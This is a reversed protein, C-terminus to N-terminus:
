RGHFHTHGHRLLAGNRFARLNARAIAAARYRISFLNRDHASDAATQLERKILPMLAARDEVLLLLAHAVARNNLAAALLEPNDGKAGAMRRAQTYADIACHLLAADFRGHSLAQHMYLNGLQWWPYARHAFTTWQAIHLASDKLNTEVAELVRDEPISRAAGFIQALTVIFRATDARPELTMGIVPVSEVFKLRTYKLWPELDSSRVLVSRSPHFSLNIWKGTGWVVFPISHLVALYQDAGNASTIRESSRRAVVSRDLGRIHVDRRIAERLLTSKSEYADQGLLAVAVTQPADTADLYAIRIALAGCVLAVLPVSAPARRGFIPLAAMGLLLLPFALQQVQSPDLSSFNVLSKNDRAVLFTPLKEMRSSSVESPVTLM